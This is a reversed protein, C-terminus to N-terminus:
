DANIMELCNLNINIIKVLRILGIIALKKNGLFLLNVNVSYVTYILSHILVESVVIINSAVLQAVLEPINVFYDHYSVHM